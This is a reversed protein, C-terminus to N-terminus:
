KSAAELVNLTEKATKEWSFKEAQLLGRKVLKDYEVNNMALVSEIAGSISEASQPNVYIGADGVVEPVSAVRSVIVPTGCAMAELIHIGFGEWFSPSILAKAGKLLAPKDKEDVFDTFVVKKGLKLDTVRQFIAKYMWGKKGAIVLILNLEKNSIVLLKFAELLGIINKSPKLTSLFLLYESSSLKYRKRVRRVDDESVNANFRSKDYGHHVVHIKKSARPYHRVIDERTSESVSIIYKSISISIATWYKLQWFDQKKLHGSFKLYGLDHITFVKPMTSIPPLYHSPSFFVDPPSALLIPMLKRIIWLGGGPIVHYSWFSKEPPLDKAPPSKLYIRYDNKVKRRMAERYIGWLIEFTYINVGVRERIDPRVENAENGDIGIIM